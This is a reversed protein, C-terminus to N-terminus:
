HWVGWKFFKCSWKTDKPHVTFQSIARSTLAKRHTPETFIMQGSAWEARSWHASVTTEVGGLESDFGASWGGVGQGIELRAERRFHQWKPYKRHNSEYQIYSKPIPKKRCLPRTHQLEHPRLTLCSQAVSRIQDSRIIGQLNMWIM